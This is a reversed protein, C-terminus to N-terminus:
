YNISEEVINKPDIGLKDIKYHMIRQTLGMQRSSSAVNGRSLKLADVILEREFSAVMTNFDAKNEPIVSATNTAQGTQLSPPMNYGHIVNDSATLVSREICNELKRVNGPWHYQTLADIAPTSIRKIDKEYEVAYKELFYDALLLLDAERERLAPLYIPLCEVPLCTREFLGKRLRKHWIGM